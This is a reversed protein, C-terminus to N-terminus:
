LSLSEIKEKIENMFNTLEESNDWKLLRFKKFDTNIITGDKYFFITVNRSTLSSKESSFNLDIRLGDKSQINDAKEKPYIFYFGPAIKKEISHKLQESIENDTDASYFDFKELLNKMMLYNHWETEYNYVYKKEFNEM